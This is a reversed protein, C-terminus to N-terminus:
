MCCLKKQYEKNILHAFLKEPVKGDAKSVAALKTITDRDLRYFRKAFWKRYSDAILDANDELLIDIEKERNDITSNDITNFKNLGISLPSNVIPTKTIQMQSKGEVWTDNLYRQLCGM